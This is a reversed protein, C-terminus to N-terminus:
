MLEDAAVDGTEVPQNPTPGDTGFVFVLGFRLRTLKAANMIWEGPAELKYEDCLKWDM